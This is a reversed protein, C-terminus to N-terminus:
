AATANVPLLALRPGPKLVGLDMEAPGTSKRLVQQPMEAKSLLPYFLLTLRALQEAMSAGDGQQTSPMASFADNVGAAAFIQRLFDIDQQFQKSYAAQERGQQSKGNEVLGLAIAGESLGHAFAQLLKTIIGPVATLRHPGIKRLQRILGYTAAYTWTSPSSGSQLVKLGNRFTTARSAGKQCHRIVQLDAKILGVADSVTQQVAKQLWLHRSSAEIQLLVDVSQKKPEGHGLFLDDLFTGHRALQLAVNGIFLAQDADEMQSLNVTMSQSIAGFALSASELYAKDTSKDRHVSLWQSVDARVGAAQKELARICECLLPSRGIVRDQMASQFTTFPDAKTNESLANNYSYLSSTTPFPTNPSFLFKVVDLDLIASDAQWLRESAILEGEASESVQSLAHNLLAPVAAAQQDLEQKYVEVFRLQLADHVTTQYARRWGDHINGTAEYDGTEATLTRRIAALERATVISSLLRGLEQQLYDVAAEAWQGVARDLGHVDKITGPSSQQHAVRQLTEPPLYRQLLHANPLLSLSHNTSLEFPSAPAAAAYLRSLRRSAKPSDTATAPQPISSVVGHDHEFLKAAQQQTSRLINHYQHLTSAVDLSSAPAPAAGAETSSYSSLVGRLSHMRQELLIDMAQSLSIQDLLVVAAVAEATTQTICM